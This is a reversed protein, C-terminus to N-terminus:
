APTAPQRTVACEWAARKFELSGGRGSACKIGTEDHKFNRRASRMLREFCAFALADDDFLQVFIAALDSRPARHTLSAPHPCPLAPLHARLAPAGDAVAWRQWEGWGREVM